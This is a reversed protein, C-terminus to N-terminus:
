LEAGDNAAGKKPANTILQKGGVSSREPMSVGSKFLTLLIIKIDLWFSWNEIYFNDFLVREEMSTDGRLGNVQAWGTIGSKVRHRHTYRYVSKEFLEVYSPQEPRPGVLSMDGKLVNFLQPLEDLNLPRIVRGVRTRRPDQRRTWTGLSEADVRMSRFKYLTFQQGDSGVRRQSFIVPGPSDLKIALAVAALVPWIVLLGAVTAVMDFARKLLVNYGMLRMRNLHMLPLSEINEVSSQVTTAEFFRPVISVDVGHRDCEWIMELVQQHPARSFAIIVQSVGYERIARQLDCSSGLVPLGAEDKEEPRAPPEKDLFGVIEISPQYSRSLLCAVRMGINGAGIVLVKQKASGEFYYTLLVYAFGRMTTLIVVGLAAAVLVLGARDPDIWILSIGLAIVISTLLVRNLVLPLDDLLSRRLRKNLMRSVALVAVWLAGLIGLLVGHWWLFERDLVGTWVLWAGVVSLIAGAADFSILLIRGRNKPLVRRPHGKRITRYKPPKGQLLTRVRLVGSNILSARL